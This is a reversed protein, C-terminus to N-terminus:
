LSTGPNVLISISDECEAFSKEFPYETWWRGKKLWSPQWLPDYRPRLIYGKELLFPQLGVWFREISALHGEHISAMLQDLLVSTQKNPEGKCTVNIYIRCDGYLDRAASFRRILPGCIAETKRSGCSM